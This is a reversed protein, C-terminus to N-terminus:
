QSVENAFILLRCLHTISITCQRLSGRVDTDLRRTGILRVEDNIVFVRPCYVENRTTAELHGVTLDNCLILHLCTNVFVKDRDDHSVVKTLLMLRSDITRLFTDEQRDVVSAVKDELLSLLKGRLM